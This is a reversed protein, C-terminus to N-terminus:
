DLVVGRALLEEKLKEPSEFHIAQFGLRKATEINPLSDDTFITEEPNLGYRRILIEFLEPDPKSEKEVGSVVIGRFLKFFDHKPETIAFKEASWNTLGYVPYHSAIRKLLDVSGGIESGCMEEWREDYMKIQDAYQPYKATLEDVSQKFPKGKDMAANWQPTCVHNLFYEMEEKDKFINRYLYRPNWDILVGGFDFVVAEVTM